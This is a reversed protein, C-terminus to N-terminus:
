TFHRSLLDRVEKNRDNVFRALERRVAQNQSQILAEAAMLRLNQRGKSAFLSDAILTQLLFQNGDHVDLQAIAKMATARLSEDIEAGALDVLEQCYTKIGGQGVYSVMRQLTEGQGGHLLAMGLTTPEKGSLAYLARLALDRVKPHENEGVMDKLFPFLDGPPRAGFLQLLNRRIFWPSESSGYVEAAELLEPHIAAGMRSLLTILFHRVPREASQFLVKLMARVMHIGHKECLTQFRAKWEVSNHTARILKEFNEQHLIHGLRTQAAQRRMPDLNAGEGLYDLGALLPGIRMKAFLYDVIQSFLLLQAEFLDQDEVQALDKPMNKFLSLLIAEQDLNILVGLAIGLSAQALERTRRDRVFLDGHMHQLIEQVKDVRQSLILTSVTKKLEFIEEEPIGAMPLAEPNALDPSSTGTTQPSTGILRDPREVKGAQPQNIQIHRVKAQSLLQGATNANPFEAPLRSLVRGLQEMESQTVAKDICISDIHREYLTKSVWRVPLSRVVAEGQADGNFLFLGEGLAWSLQGQKSVQPLLQLLNEFQRAIVPNGPPYLNLGEVAGKFVHFFAVIPDAL